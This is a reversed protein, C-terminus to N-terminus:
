AVFGAAMAPSMQGAPAEPKELPELFESRELPTVATLLQHSLVDEASVMAVPRGDDVVPLHGVRHQAMLQRAQEVTTWPMCTIVDATMVQSVRVACPDESRAVAKSVIDRESLIGAVEGRDDTVLLCGVDHKLMIHAAEVVTSEPSITIVPRSTAAM